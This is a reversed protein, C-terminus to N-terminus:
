QFQSESQPIKPINASLFICVTDGFQFYNNLIIISYKEFSVNAFSFNGFMSFCLRHRKEDPLLM